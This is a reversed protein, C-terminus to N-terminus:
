VAAPEPAEPEILAAAAASVLMNSMAKVDVPRSYLYGQASECRLNKLTDAQEQEEVGEAVVKLGLTHGLKIIGRPLASDEPGLAISDIFAKDVKLVDIPFDRLYSLSSYGTGFDDIALGVGLTKLATLREAVREVDQVLVSETLELVLKSPHLGTEELADRLEKVLGPHRFRSASINVAMTLDKHGDKDWMAATRCAEGLVWSGIELILGSEEAFPIFEMPPVLGREPHEWRILAEVGKIDGTEIEIVPQYHLVFEENDIARQLDARLRLRDSADTEMGTEFLEFRGKGKRKAAYMATDAHRLLESSTLADPGSSFALGVSAGVFFETGDISFPKQMLDLIRTAVSEAYRVENVDELLIAFEDGGLRAITDAPRLIEAVRKAVEILLHDGVSHGMSDNVVKFDDLDCFLVAVPAAGRQRRLLAHEVRDLFLARNALDTLSDHFAQHQVREELSKRESIDQVTGTLRWTRGFADQTSRGLAHIAREQGDPRILRAEYDFDKGELYAREVIAEVREQDDPHVVEMFAEYTAGFEAAEVGTIRFMEESWWVENKEIEWDWSGIHSMSQAEALESNAKQLDARAKRENDLGIENLKWAALGAASAGSIFLGHIAAWKWPNAIASAHNFVAAGDLIGVTGHHVVVFAIALLFPTWSQYLTVVAVMVFFHFHMEILGGSFHVLIASSAILGLTALASTKMRGLRPISAGLAFMGIVLAETASHLVGHQTFIGTLWLGPVHLWLVVLIARHRGAWTKEPLETGTPLASLIRQRLNKPRIL